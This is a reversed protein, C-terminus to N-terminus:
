VAKLDWGTVPEPVKPELEGPSATEFAPGPLSVWGNAGTALLVTVPCSCRCSSPPKTGLAASGVLHGPPCPSRTLRWFAANAGGRICNATTNRSFATGQSRAHRPPLLVPTLRPPAAPRELPLPGVVSGRAPQGTRPQVHSLGAGPGATGEPGQCGCHEPPITGSARLVGPKPKGHLGGLGQWARAPARLGGNRHEKLQHELPFCAAEYNPSHDHRQPGRLGRCPHSSFAGVRQGM